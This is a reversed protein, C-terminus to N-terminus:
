KRGKKKKQPPKAPSKPKKSKLLPAAYGRFDKLLGGIVEEVAFELFQERSLVPVYTYAHSKKIRKLYGKATLRNLATMATTYAYERKKKLFYLVRKVTVPQNSWVIEMVEAELDGFFKKM